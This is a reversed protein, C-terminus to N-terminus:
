ILSWGQILQTSVDDDKFDNEIALVWFAPFDGELNISRGVLIIGSHLILWYRSPCELHHLQKLLLIVLLNFNGEKRGDRGCNSSFVELCFADEDLNSPQLEHLFLKPLLRLELSQNVFYVDQPSIQEEVVISKVQGEVIQRLEVVCSSQRDLSLLSYSRLYSGFWSALALFSNGYFACYLPHMRSNM